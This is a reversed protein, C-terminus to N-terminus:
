ISGGHPTAIRPWIVDIMYADVDPSQAAWYQDFLSLTQSSSNPRSVYRTRDGTLRKRGDQARAKMWRGGEGVDSDGALRIKM